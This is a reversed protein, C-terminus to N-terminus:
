HRRFIQIWCFDWNFTMMFLSKGISLDIFCVFMEEMSSAQRREHWPDKGIASIKLLFCLLVCCARWLCVQDGRDITEFDATNVIVVHFQMKLSSVANCIFQLNFTELTAIKTWNYFFCIMPVCAQTWKDQVMNWSWHQCICGSGGNLPNLPNVTDVQCVTTAVVRTCEWVTDCLTVCHWVTDCLTVCHWVTDCLTLKVFQPPGGGKYVRVRTWM